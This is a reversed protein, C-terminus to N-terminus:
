VSSCRAHIANLASPSFVASDPSGKLSASNPATVDTSLTLLNRVSQKRLKDQMIEAEIKLDSLGGGELNEREQEGIEIEEEMTM